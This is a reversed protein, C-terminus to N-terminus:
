VTTRPTRTTLMGLGSISLMLQQSTIGPRATTFRSVCQRVLILDNRVRRVALWVRTVSLGLGGLLTLWMLVHPVATGADV